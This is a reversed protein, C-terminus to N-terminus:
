WHADGINYLAGAVAANDGIQEGISQALRHVALAQPYNRQNRLRSGRNNLATVLESTVLEKEEALLGTREAETQTKILAEALDNEAPAYRWVKWRGDEMIFAMNRVIRQERKQNSKLNTATLNVAARLSVKEGEVTVRSVVPLSLGYSEIAFQRELNQKLTALDPSKQSWLGILGDLDKAAYLAFYKEVVARVATEASSQSASLTAPASPAQAFVPSMHSLSLALACLSVRFLHSM